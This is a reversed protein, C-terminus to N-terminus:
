GVLVAGGNVNFVEGTIFGAHKTCLFLIPAAIEEPTGVRGVPITAYIKRRREADGLTSATMNTEVWGPAVCNVRIGYPALETSLGKTISILAGKSAAYDCHGAEGRQGATSSILVINGGNSQQKLQAVAHKVLAFTSDLNTAITTRWQDEAMKDIDVDESLWVGHNVVLTDMAGFQEVAARVLKEAGSIGQLDTQLARCVDSGCEDVLKEADAKAQMYNFVVRAGAAVFMRVTAAGIGRSGGTILAVQGELSLTPQTRTIAM